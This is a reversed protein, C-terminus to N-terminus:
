LLAITMPTSRLSIGEIIHKTGM